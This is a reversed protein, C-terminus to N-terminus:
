CWTPAQELVNEWLKCLSYGTGGHSSRAGQKDGDWFLGGQSAKHGWRREGHVASNRCRPGGDGVHPLHCRFNLASM